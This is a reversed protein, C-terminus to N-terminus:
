NFWFISYKLIAYESSIVMAAANKVAALFTVSFLVLFKLKQADRIQVNPTILSSNNSITPRMQGIKCNFAAHSVTLLSFQNAFSNKISNHM